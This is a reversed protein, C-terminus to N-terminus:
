TEHPVKRNQTETTRKHKPKRKRHLAGVKVMKARAQMLLKMRAKDMSIIPQSRHEWEKLIHQHNPLKKISPNSAAHRFIITTIALGRVLERFLGERVAVMRFENRYETSEFKELPISEWARSFASIRPQYENLRLLFGLSTKTVECFELAGKLDAAEPLAQAYLVSEVQEVTRTSALLIELEVIAEKRIDRAQEGDLAILTLDLAWTFNRENRLEREVSELNTNELIRLDAAEGFLYPFEDQQRPVIRSPDNVDFSKLSDGEIILARGSRGSVIANM